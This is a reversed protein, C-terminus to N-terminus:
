LAPSPACRGRSCGTRSSCRVTRKTEHTHTYIYLYLDCWGGGEGCEFIFTYLGVFACMFVHMCALCSRFSSSKLLSLSSRAQSPEWTRKKCVCGYGSQRYCYTYISIYITPQPTPPPPHAVTPCCPAFSPRAQSPEWTRAGEHMHTKCRGERTAVKKELAGVCARGRVRPVKQPHLSNRM